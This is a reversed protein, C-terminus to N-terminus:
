SNLVVEVLAFLSDFQVRHRKAQEKIKQCDIQPRITRPTALYKCLQCNKGKLKSCNELKIRLMGPDKSDILYRVCAALLRKPSQETLLAIEIAKSEFEAKM